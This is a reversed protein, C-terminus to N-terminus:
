YSILHGRVRLTGGGSGSAMATNITEGANLVLMTRLPVTGSVSGNGGAITTGSGSMYAEGVFMRNAPVTYRVTSSHVGTWNFTQDVVGSVPLALLAAVKELLYNLAGGKKALLAETVPADQSVEVNNIPATSNALNAM